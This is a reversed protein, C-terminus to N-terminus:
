HYLREASDTGDARQWFIGLDGERDSQFVVRQGDPTWTPYRNRGGFTLQRLATGKLLDYIWVNAGSVDDIGLALLKGDPSVRVLDYRGSPLKLKQVAGTREVFALDGLASGSIPGPIYM